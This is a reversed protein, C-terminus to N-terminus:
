IPRDRRGHEGCVRESRSETISAMQLSPRSTM